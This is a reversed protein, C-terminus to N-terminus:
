ARRSVMTHPADEDDVLRANPVDHSHDENVSPVRYLRGSVAVDGQLNDVVSWRVQDNGVNYHGIEVPPRQKVMCTLPGRGQRDNEHAGAVSKAAPTRCGIALVGYEEGFRKGYLLQQRKNPAQGTGLRTSLLDGHLGISTGVIVTGLVYGLTQDVANCIGRFSHAIGTMGDHFPDLVPDLVQCRQQMTLFRGQDTLRDRGVNAGHPRFLVGRRPQCPTIVSPHGDMADFVDAPDPALLAHKTTEGSIGHGGSLPHAGFRAPTFTEDMAVFSALGPPGRKPIDLDHAAVM